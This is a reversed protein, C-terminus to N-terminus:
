LPETTTNEPLQNASDAGHAGSQSTEPTSQRNGGQIERILRPLDVSAQIARDAYSQEGKAATFLFRRVGAKKETCQEILDSIQQHDVDSQQALLRFAAEWDIKESARTRKWTVRGCSSFVGERDGIIGKLKNEMEQRYGEMQKQVLHVRRLEEILYASNAQIEEIPRINHPFKKHLYSKWADSGDMDPPIDLVVHKHWWETLREILLSELEADRELPYIAFRSSGHLVAVDWLPMGTIAMYHACQILYHPPIQDTGPDGFQDTFENETKLEVGRLENQVLRDPTGRLEPHSPHVINDSPVILERGTQRVYLRAVIPELQLGLDLLFNKEPDSFEEDALAKKDMYVDM